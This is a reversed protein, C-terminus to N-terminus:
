KLMVKDGDSIDFPTKFDNLRMIDSVSVGERYAIDFANEGSQAYTYGFDASEKRDLDAQIFKFKYSICSKKVSKSYSFESLFAKVPEAYPVFLWGSVGTRLMHNLQTCYKEPEEGFFEGEGSVTVPNQSVNQVTSSGDTSCSTSINRQSAVIISSPNVPFEFDRFKMKITKM